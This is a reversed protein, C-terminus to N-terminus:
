VSYENAAHIIEQIFFESFSSAVLLRFRQNSIFDLTFNMGKFVSNLCQNLQLNNINAPCGKKIVHQIKDGEIDIVVRGHSVDNVAFYDGLNLNLVTQSVILWQNPAQWLIRTTDNFTIESTKDPLALGEITPLTSAANKLAAIHIINSNEVSNIVIM